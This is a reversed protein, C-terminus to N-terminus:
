KEFVVAEADAGLKELVGAIDSIMADPGCIYFKKSFDRVHEKLFDENIYDKIYGPKAEKTLVFVANEGLMNKLEAEDIIDAQTKNSFFLTNGHLNHQQYLQRLIALFPTIGAGGAIFFGAGKYEIAGWVDRIILEDGEKLTHMADTVGKHDPYRKITFELFPDSQLSTFTFPRKEDKLADTNISVETAQGPIFTYGAPKELRFSKVDHTVQRTSLIKVIHETTNM